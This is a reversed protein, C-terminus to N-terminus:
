EKYGLLSAKFSRDSNWPTVEVGYYMRERERIAVVKGELYVRDGKRFNNSFSGIYSIFVKLNDTFEKNGSFLSNIIDLVKIKYYAPSFTGESDDTIEAICAINGVEMMTLNSFIDDNPKRLPQCNIHIKSKKTLGQLKRSEQKILLDFDMPEMHTMRRRFLPLAYEGVYQSTHKKFCKRLEKLDSSGYCVLDIDSNEEYADILFSGTVGINELNVKNDINRIFDVLEKGVRHKLYRQPHNVIDALKEQCSFIKKIRNVPTCTVIAGHFKSFCVRGSDNGLLVFSKPVFTNYGYVKNNITRVGKESLFYKVYSVVKGSPHSNGIVKLFNDQDDLIYDRDLIM